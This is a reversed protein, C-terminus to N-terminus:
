RRHSRSYRCQVNETRRGTGYPYNLEVV